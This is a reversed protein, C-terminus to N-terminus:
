KSWYMEQRCASCRWALDDVTICCGGLVVKKEDLAQLMEPSMDPLGYLIEAMANSGCKPCAAPKRSLEIREQENM